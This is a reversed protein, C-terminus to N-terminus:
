AVPESRIMRMLDRSLASLESATQFTQNSSAETEKTAQAADAVAVTVQEVATAQQKTSLEIERAAETTAAVMDVIQKFGAAVDSFQRVGSEVAKTGGETTMVTANVAARIEEILGRIEKTSGSVRDALKRIEEAVVAFRRGADGAGAAEISANIALINTQEALENILDLVSGIQQSRRGLDLMNAVILDVQRKIGGISENTRAVSQDGSRAARATDDAIQAVRRASEAIQRSTALLETVTTTIENMSTSQQKAGTTQQHAASQLESSSSRVRQVALGIQSSLGRTLLFALVAAFLLAASSVLVVMSTATSAAATAGGKGAELFGRHLESFANLSQDLQRRRPIVEDEFGQSVTAPEIGTRRLAIVRDLAAQHAAEDQEIRTLLRRDEEGEARAGLGRLMRIFEARAAQMQELFRDEQTLLFARSEIVKHNALGRLVEADILNQAYVEIVRDKREVVAGLAYAGIAAILVSLAVMAGLGAGIKQGFTWSHAM